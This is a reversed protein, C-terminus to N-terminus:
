QLINFFVPKHEPFLQPHFAKALDKLITQPEMWGYEYYGSNYTNSYIIRKDKFAKFEAYREDMLKFNEYTFNGPFNITIMWFDCDQTDFFVKEFDYSLSGTGKTDSYPYSAGSDRFLAAIYSEGAPLFWVDQYLTGSVVTPKQRDEALILKTENYSKEAEKFIKIAQHELNFFAGFCVIWEVRGLPVSEMYGADPVTILGADQLRSYQNDKFPSVFIFQPQSMLLIEIDPEFAQGVNKIIGESIKDKVTQNSIYEPEAVSKLTEMLGLKEAMIVQTSSFAAWNEVPAKIEPIGFVNERGSNNILFFDSALEVDFPNFIEVVKDQGYYYIRFGKSYVPQYLSDPEGFSKIINNQEQKSGSFCSFITSLLILLCVNIIITQLFKNKFFFELLTFIIM